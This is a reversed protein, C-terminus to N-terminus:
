IICYGPDLASGVRVGDLLPEGAELDDFTWWGASRDGTGEIVLSPRRSGGAYPWWFSNPVVSMALVGDIFLKFLEDLTEIRLTYPRGELLTPIVISGHSIRSGGLGTTVELSSTSVGGVRITRLLAHVSAFSAKYNGGVGGLKAENPDGFWTCRAQVWGSGNATLPTNATKEMHQAPNSIVGTDKATVEQDILDFEDGVFGLNLWGTSLPAEDARNFDDTDHTAGDFIEGLFAGDIRQQDTATDYSTIGNAQIFFWRKGSAYGTSQSLHTFAALADWEKKIQHLTPPNHARLTTSTAM